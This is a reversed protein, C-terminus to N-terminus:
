GSRRLHNSAPFDKGDPLPWLSACMFNIGFFRGSPKAAQSAVLASSLCTAMHPWPCTSYTAGDGYRSPKQGACGLRRKCQIDHGCTARQTQPLAHELCTWGVQPTIDRKRHGVGHLTRAAVQGHTQGAATPLSATLVTCHRTLCGAIAPPM